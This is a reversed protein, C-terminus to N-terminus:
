EQALISDIKLFFYKINFEKNLSYFIQKKEFKNTWEYRLQDEESNLKYFHLDNTLKNFFFLWHQCTDDYSIIKKNMRKIDKYIDNIEDINNGGNNLNFIRILNSLLNQFINKQLLNLKIDKKEDKFYKYIIKAINIVQINFETWLINNLSKVYILRNALQLAGFFMYLNNKNLEVETFIKTIFQYIFDIYKNNNDLIENPFINIIYLIYEMINFIFQYYDELQKGLMNNLVYIAKEVFNEKILFNNIEQIFCFPIFQEIIFIQPLIYNNNELNSTQEFIKNFFDFFKIFYKFNENNQINLDINKIENINKYKSLSISEAFDDQILIILNYIESFLYDKEETSSQNLTYNIIQYIFEHFIEFNNKNNNNFSYTQQENNYTYFGIKKIIINILKILNRRVIYIKNKIKIEKNKKNLLGYDNIDKKIENINNENKSKNNVWILEMLPIIINFDLNLESKDMINIINNTTELIKSQLEPSTIKNIMVSIKILYNQFFFEPFINKETKNKNNFIMPDNEIYENFMDYCTLEILTENINKSFFIKLIHEIIKRKFNKKGFNTSLIKTLIRIIIFTSFIEKGKKIIIEENIQSLFIKDIIENNKEINLNYYDELYYFFLLLACKLNLEEGPLNQSIQLLQNEKAILSILNNEFFKFIESYKKRFITYILNCLNGSITKIDYFSSYETFCLFFNECSEQAMYIENENFVFCKKIIFSLIIKTNEKTFLNQNIYDTIEKFNNKNNEKCLRAYEPFSIYVLDILKYLFKIIDIILKNDNNKSNFISFLNEDSIFSYFFSSYNKITNLTIKVIHTSLYNLIIKNSLSIIDNLYNNNINSKIMQNFIYVILNYNIGLIKERSNSELYNLSYKFIKLYLIIFQYLQENNISNNINNNISQYLIDYDDIIINYFNLNLREFNNEQNSDNISDLEYNNNFNDKYDKDLDYINEYQIKKIDKDIYKIFKSCIFLIKAINGNNNKKQEVYFQFIYSCLEYVTKNYNKMDIQLFSLGKCLSIILLNITKNELNANLIINLIDYKYTNIYQIFEDRNESTIKQDIFNKIYISIYIKVNNDQSTRLISYFNSLSSINMSNFYSTILSDANKRSLENPSLIDLILSEINLSM